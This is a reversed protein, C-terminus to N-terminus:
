ALATKVTVDARKPGDDQETPYKEWLRIGVQGRVMHPEGVAAVAQPALWAPWGDAVLRSEGAQPRSRYVRSHEVSRAKGPLDIVQDEVEGRDIMRRLAFSVPHWSLGHLAAIEAASVWGVMARLTALLVGDAIQRGRLPRSRLPLIKTNTM